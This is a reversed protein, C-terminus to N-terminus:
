KPSAIQSGSELQQGFLNPEKAAPDGAAQRTSAMTSPESPPLAPEPAAIATTGSPPTNVEAQPISQTAQEGAKPVNQVPPSDPGATALPERVSEPRPPRRRTKTAAAIAPDATTRERLGSNPLPQAPPSHPDDTKAASKVPEAPSVTTQGTVGAATAPSIEQQAAVPQQAAPVPNPPSMQQGPQSDQVDGAGSSATQSPAQPVALMWWAALGPVAFTAIVSGALLKKGFLSRAPKLESDRM